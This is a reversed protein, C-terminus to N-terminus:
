RMKIQKVIVQSVLKRKKEKGPGVVFWGEGTGGGVM